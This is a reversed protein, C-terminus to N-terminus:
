TMRGEVLGAAGVPLRVSHPRDDEQRGQDSQKGGTLAMKAVADVPAWPGHPQRDMVGLQCHPASARRGPSASGGACPPGSRLLVDQSTHSTFILPPLIPHKPCTHAGRPTYLVICVAGLRALLLCEVKGFIAPQSMRPIHPHAQLHWAPCHSIRAHVGNPPGLWRQCGGAHPAHVGQGRGQAVFQPEPWQSSFKPCSSLVQCRNSVHVGNPPWLWRRCGGAHPAHVGQGRGHALFQPDPCESSTIIGRDTAAVSIQCAGWKSAGTLVLLQRHPTCATLAARHGFPRGAGGRANCASASAQRPGEDAIDGHSGGCAGVRPVAPQGGSGACAATPRHWGHGGDAGSCPPLAPADTSSYVAGCCVGRQSGHSFRWSGRATAVMNLRAM